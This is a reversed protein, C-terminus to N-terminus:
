DPGRVDPGSAAGLSRGTRALAATRSGVELKAYVHELHKKVTGPSIWLMEAIRTNTAGAAVLDLVESERATLDAAASSPGGAALDEVTAALRRYAEYEILAPRLANLLLLDRDRYDRGERAVALTWHTGAEGPLRMQVEHPLTACDFLEFIETQRFAAMDDVVDSLRIASFYQDGSSRAHVCFPNEAEILAWEYDNPIWPDGSPHAPYEADTLLVRFPKALHSYGAVDVGIMQSIRELFWLDARDRQPAATGLEAAFALAAELDSRSLHAM